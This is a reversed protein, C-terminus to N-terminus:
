TDYEMHSLHAAQKQHYEVEIEYGRTWVRKCQRFVPKQSSTFLLFFESLEALVQPHEVKLRAGGEWVALVLCDIRLMGDSSMCKAGLPYDFTVIKPQKKTPEIPPSSNASEYGRLESTIVFRAPRGIQPRVVDPGLNDKRAVQGRMQTRM